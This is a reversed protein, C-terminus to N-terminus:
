AVVRSLLLLSCVGDFLLCCFCVVVRTLCPLMFFWCADVFVGRVVVFLCCRVADVLLLCWCMIM